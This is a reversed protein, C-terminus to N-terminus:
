LSFGGSRGDCVLRGKRGFYNTKIIQARSREFLDKKRVTKRWKLHTKCSPIKAFVEFLYLARNITGICESVDAEDLYEFQNM